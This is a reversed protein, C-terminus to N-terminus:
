RCPAARCGPGRCSSAGRGRRRGTRRIRRSPARRVRESVSCSALRRRAATRRGPDVEATPGGLEIELVPTVPRVGPGDGTRGLEGTGVADPTERSPRSADRSEGPRLSVPSERSSRCGSGTVREAPEATEPRAATEVGRVEDRGRAPTATVAPTGSRSVFGAIRPVAATAFDTCPRRTPKPLQELHVTEVGRGTVPVLGTVSRPAPRRAPSWEPTGCRATATPVCRDVAAVM